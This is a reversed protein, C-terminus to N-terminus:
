QPAGWKALIDTVLGFFQAAFSISAWLAGKANAASTEFAWKKEPTDGFADKEDTFRAVGLEKPVKIQSSIWWFYAALGASIVALFQCIMYIM